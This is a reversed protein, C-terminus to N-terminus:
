RSRHQLADAYAALYQDVLRSWDLQDARRRGAVAPTPDRLEACIATALEVTNTPDAGRGCGGAAEALGGRLSYVLGRGSALAEVAVIGFPEIRSPVVAVRARALLDRVGGRDLPGLLEVGPGASRRLTATQPGEGGLLLRAGKIERRVVDFASLLLDFGKQEVHRGWAAIVPQEVTPGVPWDHVDVGNLIVRAQSFAPATLAAQERTWSSCATLVAASESARRLARRLLPNRAYVQDADMVTEGQTTLVTPVGLARATRTMTSTQNSPCVIHILDPRPVLSVLQREVSARRRLDDVISRPRRAPTTFFVRRVDAGEVTESEPLELPWRHTVVLVDIGRRELAVALKLTLEEVGGRHPFFASPALWVRAPTM